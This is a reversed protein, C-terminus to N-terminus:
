QKRALLYGRQSPHEVETYPQRVLRAQVVLGAAELEAALREPQYFQFDLAVPQGFLEAPRLCDDGVHFSLLALGSPRLVRSFERLAQPVLHPPIHIISYFAVIGALSADPLDLALMSGVQFRMAPSLRSALAVMQPSLDIGIVDLGHDHLYRGIQGPGCGIDATTGLGRVEEAFADLLARDLPKHALEDFFRAAYEEAIGDYSAATNAVLEDDMRQDM